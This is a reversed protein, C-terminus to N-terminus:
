RRSQLRRIPLELRVGETVLNPGYSMRLPKSSTIQNFTGPNKVKDTQLEYVFITASQTHAEPFASVSISGTLSERSSELERTMEAVLNENSAVCFQLHVLNMGAGCGFELVRLGKSIKSKPMDNGIAELYIDTYDHV